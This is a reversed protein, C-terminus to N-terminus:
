PWAKPHTVQSQSRHNHGQSRYKLGVALKYTMNLERRAMIHERKIFGLRRDAEVGFMGAFM